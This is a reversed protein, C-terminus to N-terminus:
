KDHYRSEVKKSSYYESDTSEVEVRKTEGHLSNFLLLQAMM